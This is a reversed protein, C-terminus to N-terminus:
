KKDKLARAMKLHEELTPLTKAALDRLEKVDGDKAQKQFLTVATQHDNVMHQAYEQDFKESIAALKKYLAKNQCRLLSNKSQVTKAPASLEQPGANAKTTATRSHFSLTRRDQLKMDGPADSAFLFAHRAM